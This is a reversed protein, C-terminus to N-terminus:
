AIGLEHQLRGRLDDAGLVAEGLVDSVLLHEAEEVVEFLYDLSSRLKRRQKRSAGIQRKDDRAALEQANL